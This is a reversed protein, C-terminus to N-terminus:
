NGFDFVAKIDTLIDVGIIIDYDVSTEDVLIYFPSEIKTELITGEIYARGFIQSRIDGGRSGASGFIPDFDVHHSMIDTVKEFADGNIYSTEAGTDILAVLVLESSIKLPLCPIDPPKSQPDLVFRLPIDNLSLPNSSGAM